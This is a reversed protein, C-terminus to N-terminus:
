GCFFAEPFREHYSNSQKKLLAHSDRVDGMGGHTEGGHHICNRAVSLEEMRDLPVPGDEWRIGAENLFWEGYVEFWNKGKGLKPKNCSRTDCLQGITQDLFERFSRQLLTLCVQQQLKLGDNAHIWESLFPPEECNELNGQFIYPAENSDIRRKIEHFPQTTLEFFSRLFDLKEALIAFNDM